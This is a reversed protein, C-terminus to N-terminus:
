ATMTGTILLNPKGVGNKENATGVNFSAGATHRPDGFLTVAVVILHTADRNTIELEPM